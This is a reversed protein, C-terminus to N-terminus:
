SIVRDVTVRRIMMDGDKRIMFSSMIAHEHNRGCKSTLREGVCGLLLRGAADVAMVQTNPFADWSVFVCTIATSANGFNMRRTHCCVIVVSGTGTRCSQMRREIM